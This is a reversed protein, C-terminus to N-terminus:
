QSKGIDIISMRTLYEQMMIIFITVILVVMIVSALIIKKRPKVPNKSVRPAQLIELNKTDKKITTAAAKKIEMLRLQQNLEIIRNENAGKTDEYERKLAGKKELENKIENEILAILLEEDYIRQNTESLSDYLSKIHEYLNFDGKDAIWKLMLDKDIWALSNMNVDQKDKAPQDDVVLMIQNTINIKKEKFDEIKLKAIEMEKRKMKVFNDITIKSSKFNRELNEIALKETEIKKMNLMIIANNEQIDYDVDEYISNLIGQYRKKLEQSLMGLIKLGEEPEDTYYSIDISFDGEQHSTKFTLFDKSTNDDKDLKDLINSIFTGSEVIEIINEPKDIAVMQGGEARITRTNIIMNARYQKPLSYLIPITILIAVLSVSAIIWKKGYLVAIFDILELEKIRSKSNM